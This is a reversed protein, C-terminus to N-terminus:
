TQLEVPTLAVDLLRSDRAVTFRTPVGIREAIMLRQLEAMGTVPEGDVSVILDGPRLGARAAPADEVVQV